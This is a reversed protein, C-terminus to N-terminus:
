LREGCDINRWHWINIGMAKEGLNEEWCPDSMPIKGQTRHVETKNNRGEKDGPAQM